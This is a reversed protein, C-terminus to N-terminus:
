SLSDRNINVRIVLNLSDFIKDFLFFLDSGIGELKLDSSSDYCIIFLCDNGSSNLCSSHNINVKSTDRDSNFSWSSGSM